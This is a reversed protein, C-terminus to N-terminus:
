AIVEAARHRAKIEAAAELIDSVGMRWLLKSVDTDQIAAVLQVDRKQSPTVKVGLTESLSERPEDPGTQDPPHM